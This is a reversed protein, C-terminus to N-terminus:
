PSPFPFGFPKQSFPATKLLFRTTKEKRSKGVNEVESYKRPRTVEFIKIRNQCFINFYVRTKKLIKVEIKQNKKFILNSRSTKPLGTGVMKGLFQDTKM